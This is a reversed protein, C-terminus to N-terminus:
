VHILPRLRYTTKRTPACAFVMVLFIAAVCVALFHSKIKKMNLPILTLSFINNCIIIVILYTLIDFWDFTGPIFSLYQGIESIFPTLLILLKDSNSLHQHKSLYRIALCLATCWAMDSFYGRFFLSWVSHQIIIFEAPHIGFWHFLVIHPNFLFYNAVGLFLAVFAAILLYSPKHTLKM